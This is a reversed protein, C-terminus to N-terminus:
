PVSLCVDMHRHIYISIYGHMCDPMWSVQAMKAHLNSAFVRTAAFVAAPSWEYPKSIWLVSQMSLIDPIPALPISIYNSM